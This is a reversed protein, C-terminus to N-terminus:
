GRHSPPKEGCGCRVGLVRSRKPPAATRQLKQHHSHLLDVRLGIELCLGIPPHHLIFQRTGEGSDCTARAQQQRYSLVLRKVCLLPAFHFMGLIEAARLM